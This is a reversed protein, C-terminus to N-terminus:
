KKNKLVEIEKQQEKIAEILYPILGIYNVSKIGDVDTTVLEPMIAETEQALVGAQISQDRTSDKWFYNYGNIQDIKNLASQLPKIEAKLTADSNQTVTGAFRVNGDGRLIMVDGVPSYNIHFVASQSNVLNPRGYLVWASNGATPNSFRLRAGDGSTTEELNLHPNSSTSHRSILQSGELHLLTRPQIAGIGVNGNKLIMLATSSTIGPSGNGVYLLPDTGRWESVSGNTVRNNSGLATEFYGTSKAYQGVAISHGGSAASNIGLALSNEGTATVGPGIATAKRGSAIASSGLAIASVESARALYGIATAYHDSAYAEYGIAVSNRVTAQSRYGAAISYDGSALNSAGISFSATGSATNLVGLVASYQGTAKTFSGFATSGSALASEGASFSMVGISDANWQSDSVFGARFAAKGPLWMMRTGPGSVPTASYGPTYAGSFLVSSDAVHLRAQPENTGIGVNQASASFSGAMIIAFLLNRKM